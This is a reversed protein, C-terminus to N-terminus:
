SRLGQNGNRVVTQICSHSPAHVSPRSNCIVLGRVPDEDGRYAPLNNSSSEFALSVHGLDGQAVFRATLALIMVSVSMVCPGDFTGVQNTRSGEGPKPGKANCTGNWAFGVSDLKNKRRRQESMWSVQSDDYPLSKVRSYKHVTFMEDWSLNENGTGEPAQSICADNWAFGVTDLKDKRRRQESMWSIQSDDYPLGKVTNYKYVAFMEDWSIGHLQRAVGGNSPSNVSPPTVAL